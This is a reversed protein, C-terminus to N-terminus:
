RGLVWEEGPVAGKPSLFARARAVAGADALAPYPNGNPLDSAYFDFQRQALDLRGKESLADLESGLFSRLGADSSRQWESTTLLYAKLVDYAPAGKLSELMRAETAGFLLQRFKAYYIKRVDPLIESGKYLGFRLRLPPGDREYATLRALSQRLTELSELSDIPPTLIEEQLARNGFFSWTMLACYILCCLPAAALLIRKM